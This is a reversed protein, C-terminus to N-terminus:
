AAPTTLTKWPEVTYAPTLTLLEWQVGDLHLAGGAPIGAVEGPSLVRTRQTSVTRTPGQSQAGALTSALFGRHSSTRSVVTRDYEGLAVSIAELTQPDAVGPLILKAGFLTLFGDAAQGWRARAQSLDQFAALLTLGQGGGESAIAPLEQLPAINAAEDLAFLVRGGLDGQRHSLYTARRIESLLGCVIPAAAAQQEAAALIYVTDQSTVFAAPDFNPQKTAALAADSNYAVLADATASFISAREREETNFIGVLSGFALRSAAEQELVVGAQDLDHRLVWDTVTEM